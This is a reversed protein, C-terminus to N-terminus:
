RSTMLEMDQRLDLRKFHHFTGQLFFSRRLIPHITEKKRCLRTMTRQYDANSQKQKILLSGPVIWHSCAVSSGSTFAKVKTKPRKCASSALAAAAAECQAFDLLSSLVRKMLNSSEILGVISSYKVFYSGYM